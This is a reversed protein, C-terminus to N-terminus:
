AAAETDPTTTAHAPQGAAVPLRLAFTTRGPAADALVVDGRHARAVSRAVALGLGTGDARSTVFPDFIRERLAAPVGPGDDRVAIEAEVGAVRAEIRVRARPGAAQLANSALNLLAGALAERNGALPIDPRPRAVDLAQGPALAPRLATEAAELLNGATFRQEALTAGRAFQLMDAVLRELDHLCGVSRALLGDRQEAPLERRAANTAYLLAAALPTRVQHALAAAMEGMTALRRHRALLEEIRRSETVDTLLLAAGPGPDLPRHAVAVRRGALALESQGAVTARERLDAWREGLLPEGLLALAGANAHRVRGEGDLLLAGGPLAELLASLQRALEANRRSEAARQRQAARLERRLRASERELTRWSAELEGAAATFAAFAQALAAAEPGAPPTTPAAPMVTM